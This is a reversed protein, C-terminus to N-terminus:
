KILFLVINKKFIKKTATLTLNEFFRARLESKQSFLKNVPLPFFYRTLCGSKKKKKELIGYYTPFILFFKKKM